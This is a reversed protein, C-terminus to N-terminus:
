SNSIGGSPRSFHAIEMKEIWPELELVKDYARIEDTMVPVTSQRKWQELLQGANKYYDPFPYFLRKAIEFAIGYATPAAVQIKQSIIQPLQGLPLDGIYLQAIELAIHESLSSNVGFVVFAKKMELMPNDSLFFTQIKEPLASIKTSFDQM